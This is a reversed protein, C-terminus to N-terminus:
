EYTLTTTTTGGDELDDDKEYSLEMYVNVKRVLEGKFPDRDCVANPVFTEDVIEFRDKNFLIRVGYHSHDPLDLEYADAPGNHGPSDEWHGYGIVEYVLGEKPLLDDDGVLLINEVAECNTNSFDGNICKVKM